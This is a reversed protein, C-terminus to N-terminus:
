PVASETVMTEQYCSLWPFIAWRLYLAIEWPRLQLISRKWEASHFVNSGGSQSPAACVCDRERERMPYLHM